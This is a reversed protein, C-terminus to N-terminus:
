HSFSIWGGWSNPLTMEGTNSQFTIFGCHSGSLFLSKALSNDIFVVPNTAM